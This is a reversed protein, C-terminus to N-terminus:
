TLHDMLHRRKLLLQVSLILICEMENIRGLSLEFDSNRPIADQM